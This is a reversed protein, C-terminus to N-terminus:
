IYIYIMYVYTDYMRFFSRGVAGGESVLEVLARFDRSNGALSILILVDVPSKDPLAWKQCLLFSLNICIVCIPITNGFCIMLFISMRFCFENQAGNRYGFCSSIFGM